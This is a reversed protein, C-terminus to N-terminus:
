SNNHLLKLAWRCFNEGQRIGIGVDLISDTSCINFIAGKEGNFSQITILNLLMTMFFEDSESIRVMGIVRKGDEYADIIQEITKDSTAQGITEESVLLGECVFNVIFLDNNAVGNELKNLKESTVTDGSKWNTKEYAM